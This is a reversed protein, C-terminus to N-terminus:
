IKIKPGWVWDGALSPQAIFAGITRVPRQFNPPCQVTHFAPHMCYRGNGNISDNEDFCIKSTPHIM